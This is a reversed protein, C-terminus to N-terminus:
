ALCGPSVVLATLTWCPQCRRWVLLVELYHVPIKHQFLDVDTSDDATQIAQCNSTLRFADQVTGTVVGNIEDLLSLYPEKM